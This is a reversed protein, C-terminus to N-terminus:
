NLTRMRLMGGEDQNNGTTGGDRKDAAFKM